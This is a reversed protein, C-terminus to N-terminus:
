ARHRDSSSLQRPVTVILYNFNLSKRDGTVIMVIIKMRKRLSFLPFHLLLFGVPISFGHLLGDGDDSGDDALCVTPKRTVIRGSVVTVPVDSSM